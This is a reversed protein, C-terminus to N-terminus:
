GNRHSLMSLGPYTLSNALGQTSDSHDAFRNGVVPYDGHEAAAAHAHNILSFIGPQPARDRHLKQRFGQSRVAGCHLAELALRAGDGRQVMGVDAREVIDVAVLPQREQHHLVQFALREFVCIPLVGSSSSSNSSRAM